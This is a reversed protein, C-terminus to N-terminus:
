FSLLKTKFPFFFFDYVPTAWNCNSPLFLSHLQQFRLKQPTETTFFGGPLSPSLPGTESRPLDWLRSTVLDMYLQQAQARSVMSQLLFFWLLSYSSCWVWLSFAVYLSFATRCWLGLVALIFLYFIKFSDVSIQKPM